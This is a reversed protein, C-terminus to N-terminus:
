DGKPGFRKENIATKWKYVETVDVKFAVWLMCLYHFLDVSEEVLRIEFEKQELSGRIFKKMVEACEGAEGNLGHVIMNLDLGAMEPFWRITNDIVDKEIQPLTMLPIENEEFWNAIEGENWDQGLISILEDRKVVVYKNPDVNM